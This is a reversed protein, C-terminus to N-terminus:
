DRVDANGLTSYEGTIASTLESNRADESVDSLADTNVNMVFSDDDDDSDEEEGASM